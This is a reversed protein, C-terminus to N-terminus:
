TFVPSFIPCLTKDQVEVKINSRQLRAPVLQARTGYAVFGNIVM